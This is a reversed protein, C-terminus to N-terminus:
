KFEYDHGVCDMLMRLFFFWPAPQPLLKLDFAYCSLYLCFVAGLLTNLINFFYPLLFWNSFIIATNYYIELDSNKNFFLYASGAIITFFLVTYFKWFLKM